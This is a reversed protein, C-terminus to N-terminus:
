SGTHHLFGTAGFGGRVVPARCSGPAAPTVLGGGSLYAQYRGYYYPYKDYQQAVWTAGDCFGHAKVATKCAKPNFSTPGCPDGAQQSYACAMTALVTLTVRVSKKM